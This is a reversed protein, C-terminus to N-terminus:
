SVRRVLGAQFFRVPAMLLILAEGPAPRSPAAAHAALPLRDAQDAVDGPVRELSGAALVDHVGLDPPM